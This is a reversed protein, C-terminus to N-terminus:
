SHCRAHISLHYTFVIPVSYSSKIHASMPVSSLANPCSWPLLFLARLERLHRVSIGLRESLLLAIHQVDWTLLVLLILQERDKNVSPELLTRAYVIVDWGGCGNRKRDVVSRRCNGLM